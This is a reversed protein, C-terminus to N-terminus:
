TLLVSPIYHAIYRLHLCCVNCLVATSTNTRIVLRKGQILTTVISCWLVVCQLQVVVTVVCLSQLPRDSLYVVCVVCYPHLSTHRNKLGARRVTISCGTGCVAATSVPGLVGYQWLLWVANLGRRVSM